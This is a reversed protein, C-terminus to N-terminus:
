IHIYINNKPPKEHRGNRHGNQQTNEFREYGM